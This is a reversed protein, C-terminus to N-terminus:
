ILTEKTVNDPAFSSAKENNQFFNNELCDLAKKLWEQRVPTDETINRIINGEIGGKNNYVTLMRLSDRVAQLLEEGLNADQNPQKSM